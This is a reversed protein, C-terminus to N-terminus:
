AASHVVPTAKPWQGFVPDKAHLKHPPSSLLVMRAELTCGALVMGAPMRRGDGFDRGAGM